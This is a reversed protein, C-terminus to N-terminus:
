RWHINTQRNLATHGLVFTNQDYMALLYYQVLSIFSSVWVIVLDVADGKTRHKPHRNRKLVFKSCQNLQGHQAIFADDIWFLDHNGNLCHASYFWVRAM